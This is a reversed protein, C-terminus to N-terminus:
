VQDYLEHYLERGFVKLIVTAPVALVMGPIGGLSGAITLALMVTLPHLGANEGVVYPQLYWGDISQIILVAVAVKGM